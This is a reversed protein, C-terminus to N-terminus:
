PFSFLLPDTTLLPMIIDENDVLYYANVVVINRRSARESFEADPLFLLLHHVLLCNLDQLPMLELGRGTGGRHLVHLHTHDATEHVLREDAQLFSYECLRNDM